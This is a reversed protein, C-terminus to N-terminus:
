VFREGGEEWDGIVKMNDPYSTNSRVPNRARDNERFEEEAKARLKAEKEQDKQISGTPRTQPQHRTLVTRPSPNSTPRHPARRM